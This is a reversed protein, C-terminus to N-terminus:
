RVISVILLSLNILVDHRLPGHRIILGQGLIEFVLYAGCTPARVGHNLVRLM